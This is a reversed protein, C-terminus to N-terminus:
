VLTKIRNLITTKWKDLPMTSNFEFSYIMIIKNYSYCFYWQDSFEQLDKNEIAIILGKVFKCERTTTFSPDRDSYREIANQAGVTDKVMIMLQQYEYYMLLSICCVHELTNIEQM